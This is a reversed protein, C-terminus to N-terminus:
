WTFSRFLGTAESRQIALFANAVALALRFGILRLYGRM